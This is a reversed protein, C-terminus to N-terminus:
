LYSMKQFSSTEVLFFHVQYYFKKDLLWELNVKSKQEGGKQVRLKLISKFIYTYIIDVVSSNFKRIQGMSAWVVLTHTVSPFMALLSIHFIKRSLVKENQIPAIRCLM